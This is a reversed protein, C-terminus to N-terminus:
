FYIGCGALFQFPKQFIFTIHSSFPGDAYRLILPFIMRTKYVREVTPEQVYIEDEYTLYADLGDKSYAGNYWYRNYAMSKHLEIKQKQWWVGTGIQVEDGLLLNAGFRKQGMRGSGIAYLYEEGNVYVPNGDSTPLYLIAEDAVYKGDNYSVSYWGKIITFSWFPEIVFAKNGLQLSIDMNLQDYPWSRDHINYLYSGSNYTYLTRWSSKIGDIEDLSAYLDYTFNIGFKAKQAIILQNSLLFGFVIIKVIRKV